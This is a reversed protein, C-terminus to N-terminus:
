MAQEANENEDKTKTRIGRMFVLSTLFFGFDFTSYLWSILQQYVKSTMRRRLLWGLLRRRWRSRFAVVECISFVKDGQLHGMKLAEAFTATDTIDVDVMDAAIDGIEIIQALTLPKVKVPIAGLKLILPKEIVADGVKREKGKDEM